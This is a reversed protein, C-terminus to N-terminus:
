RTRGEVKSKPSELILVWDHDLGAPPSCTWLGKEDAEVPPLATKAGSVPDFWSAGYRGHRGLNRVVISDSQPVYIMRVVDPIGASQPGYVDDNNQEDFASQVTQQVGSNFAAAM